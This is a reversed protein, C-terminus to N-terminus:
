LALDSDLKNERLASASRGGCLHSPEWGDGWGPGTPARQKLPPSCRKLTACLTEVRIIRKLAPM